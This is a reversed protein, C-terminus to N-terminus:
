WTELSEPIGHQRDQIPRYLLEAETWVDLRIGMQIGGFVFPGTVEGWTTEFKYLKNNILWRAHSRVKRLLKVKM